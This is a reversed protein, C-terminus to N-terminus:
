FVETSLEDQLGCIEIFIRNLEEKMCSFSITTVDDQWNSLSKLSVSENPLPVEQFDWSTERSDWDKPFRFV